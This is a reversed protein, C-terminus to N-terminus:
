NRAAGAQRELEAVDPLHDGLLTPILRGLLRAAAADMEPGVEQSARMRFALEIKSYYLYKETPRIMRTRVENRDSYFDGNVVFFYYVVIRADRAQPSDFILRRTPATRDTDGLPLRVVTDDALAFGGQYYCEDPVHPVQDPNGTYYTIFLNVNRQWTGEAAGPDELAWQIYARTGLELEGEEPIRTSERLVLPRLSDRRLETLEAKLPAARKTIYLMNNRKAYELYLGATGLVALAAALPLPFAGVGRRATGATKPAENM